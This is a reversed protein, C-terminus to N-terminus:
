CTSHNGCSFPGIAGQGKGFNVRRDRSREPHMWDPIRLILMWYFYSLSNSVDLLPFVIGKFFAGPKYLARKLTEYYHPNLKGNERIDERISDLVVGQLFVRAQAPKM